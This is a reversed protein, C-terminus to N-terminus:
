SALLGAVLLDEDVAEWHIGVGGGILCWASLQEPSAASLRPFWALPVAIERGDDLSVRLRDPDFRVDIALPGHGGAQSGTTGSTSM